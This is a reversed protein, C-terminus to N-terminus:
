LNSQLAFSGKCNSPAERPGAACISVFLCPFVPMLEDTAGSYLGSEACVVVVEIMYGRAYAAYFVGWIGDRLGIEDHAPPARPASSTCVLELAVPVPV